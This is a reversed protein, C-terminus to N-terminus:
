ALGAAGSEDAYIPPVQMFQKGGGPRGRQLHEIEADPGLRVGAHPAEIARLVFQHEDELKPRAVTSAKAKTTAARPVILELSSATRHALFSFLKRGVLDGFSFLKRGVLSGFVVL